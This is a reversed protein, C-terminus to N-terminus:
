NLQGIVFWDFGEAAQDNSTSSQFGLTCYSGTAEQIKQMWLDAKNRWYSLYPTAQVIYPAVPMAVPFVINVTLETRITARYRGWQMIMGNPFLCYGNVDKSGTISTSGARAFDSAHLGDVTDADMGTGSGQRASHWVVGGAVFLQSNPLYYNNGDFYLYHDENLGLFIVGTNNGRNAAIDGTSRLQVTGGNGQVVLTGNMNDGNISVPRYGLANTVDTGNMTVAGSRGNYSNVAASSPPPNYSIVGSNPDYSIAGSSSIAQRARATTFYQQDSEAIHSTNLPVDQQGDFRIGGNRSGFVRSNNLRNAADVSGPASPFDINSPDIKGAANRVVVAGPIGAGVAPVAGRLTFADLEIGGVPTLGFLIKWRTDLTPASPDVCIRLNKNTAQVNTPMQFWFQGLVPSSPEAIGANNELDKVFNQAIEDGYNAFGYGLLTLGGVIEKAYDQVIVSKGDAKTVKYSM